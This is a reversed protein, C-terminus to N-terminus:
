PQNQMNCTFQNMNLKTHSMQSTVMLSLVQASSWIIRAYEFLTRQSSSIDYVVQALKDNQNSSNSAPLKEPDGYKKSLIDSQLSSELMESMNLISNLPTMQEHSLSATLQHQFNYKIKSKESKLVM